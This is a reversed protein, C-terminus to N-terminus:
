EGTKATGSSKLMRQFWEQLRGMDGFINDCPRVPTGNSDQIYVLGTETQGLIETIGVLNEEGERRSYTMLFLPVGLKDKLKMLPLWTNRDSGNYGSYCANPDYSALPKRNTYRNEIIAAIHPVGDREVVLFGDINGGWKLGHEELLRDFFTREAREQFDRRYIKTQTTGKKRRWWAIFEEETYNSTNNCCLRSQNEDPYVDYVYIDPRGQVHAVLYFPVGLRKAFVGAMYLEKTLGNSEILDSLHCGLEERSVEFAEVAATFDWNADLLLGGLEFINFRDAVAQSFRHEGEM